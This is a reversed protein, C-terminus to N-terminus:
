AVVSACWEFCRICVRLVQCAHCRRASASKRAVSGVCAPRFPPSSCRGPCLASDSSPPMGREVAIVGYPLRVPRSACAMSGKCFLMIPMFVVYPGAWAVVQLGVKSQEWQLQSGAMGMECWMKQSERAAVGAAHKGKGRFAHRGAGKGVVSCLAVETGTNGMKGSIVNGQSV